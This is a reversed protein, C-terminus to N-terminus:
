TSVLRVKGGWTPGSCKVEYWQGNRTGGAVSGCFKHGIFVKTGALREGCCDRRNLIKVRDVM